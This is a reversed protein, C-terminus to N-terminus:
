VRYQKRFQGPSVGRLRAFQRSFHAHNGYGVRYGIETVSPMCGAANQRKKLCTVPRVNM